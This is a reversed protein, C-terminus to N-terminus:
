LVVNDISMWGIVNDVLRNGLWFGIKRDCPKTFDDFMKEYIVKIIGDNTKVYVKENNEPLCIKPDIWQSKLILYQIESLNNIFIAKTIPMELERDSYDIDCLLHLNGDDYITFTYDETMYELFTKDKDEENVFIANTEEDLDLALSFLNNAIPIIKELDLKIIRM